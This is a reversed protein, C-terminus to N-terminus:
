FLNCIRYKVERGFYVQEKKNNNFYTRFFNMSLFFFFGVWFTFRPQSINNMISLIFHKERERGKLM